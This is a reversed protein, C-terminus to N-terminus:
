WRYVQASMPGTARRRGNGAPPGFKPDRLREETKSHLKSPRSGSSKTQPTSSKDALVGRPGYNIMRWYRVTSASTRFREAIEETKFYKTDMEAKGNSPQQHFYKRM